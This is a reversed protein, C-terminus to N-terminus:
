LEQAASATKGRSWKQTNFTGRPAQSYIEALRLSIISNDEPEAQIGLATPYSSDALHGSVSAAPKNM